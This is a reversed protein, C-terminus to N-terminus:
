YTRNNSHRRHQKFVQDLRPTVLFAKRWRGAGDSSSEDQTKRAQVVNRRLIDAIDRVLTIKELIVKTDPASDTTLIDRRIKLRFAICRTFHRITIVTM